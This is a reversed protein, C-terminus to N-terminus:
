KAAAWQRVSGDRGALLGLALIIEKQSEPWPVSIGACFRSPAGVNKALTKSLWAKRVQAKLFCLM